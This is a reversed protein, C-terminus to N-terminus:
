LPLGRAQMGPRALKIAETIHLQAVKSQARQRASGRRYSEATMLIGVLILKISLETEGRSSAFALLHDRIEDPLASWVLLRHEEGFEFTLRHAFKNRIENLVTGVRRYGPPVLGMALTLDLKSPFSLRRLDIEYPAPLAETIAQILIHEFYLHARILMNLADPTDLHAVMQEKTFSPESAKDTEEQLLKEM